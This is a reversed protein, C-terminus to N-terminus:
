GKRYYTIIKESGDQRQVRINISDPYNPKFILDYKSSEISKPVYHDNECQVANSEKNFKKGCIECIFSIEKKAM